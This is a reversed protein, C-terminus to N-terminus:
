PMVSLKIGPLATVRAQKALGTIVGGGFYSASTDPELAAVVLSALPQTLPVYYSGEPVDLLVPATKIEQQAGAYSEGQVVGKAMAQEVRVGLLRLRAVADAQDADLWYGCPRKRVKLERLVLASDWNVTLTKDAGTAPDLMALTYESATPGAEVVVQGQCAQASVDADVYQRLKLLDGGRQAANQLVSTMAVVQTHVRRKLHTRGLGAGRTEIVLSVVNKLGQVNRGSDPLTGGMSLRKDAVDNSTRHVWQSSLGHLKFSAFLPQRFWEEAAKTFFPPLNGTTAYQVQADDRQVAGFKQAYAGNLTYERAEAVVLPQYDRVLKALAQAEPTKLWLHDRDIDVGNASARQGTQAGDPNARPLVVVNIRDLLSQLRGRTLEQALVILAESSAPEDGHQQGMVLVLPRGSRQLAAPTVDAHRSFLLAEIPLGGQSSGLTLLRAVSPADRVLGRLLAQLEANSTFDNRGAQLAPTRYNVAPDPFRAAVADSLPVPPVVVPAALVPPPAAPVPVPATPTAPPMPTSCGLLAAVSLFATAWRLAPRLSAQLM